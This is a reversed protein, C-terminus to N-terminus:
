AEPTFGRTRWHRVGVAGLLGALMLFVSSPEPVVDINATVDVAFPGIQFNTCCNAAPTFGNSNGGFEVTHEGPSLGDIMLWYGAAENPSLDDGLTVGAAAALTGAETPGASFYGTQELYSSVNSVSNGDITAFLSATNVSSKWGAVTVDAAHQRDALPAFGDISAAELDNFPLIPVLIPKGLPATINITVHGLTPDGDTTPVYFVPGNNNLTAPVNGTAPDIGAFPYQWYRSWWGETWDAISQGAVISNPALITAANACPTALVVTSAVVVARMNRRM